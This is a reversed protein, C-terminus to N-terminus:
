TAHLYLSAFTLTNMTCYFSLCKIVQGVYRVLINAGLSWGAAYLKARPYRSGVHEVVESIDGLFSASYFQSFKLRLRFLHFAILHIDGDM